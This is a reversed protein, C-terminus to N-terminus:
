DVYFSMHVVDGDDNILIYKFVTQRRQKCVRDTMTMYFYYQFVLRKTIHGSIQHDCLNRGIRLQGSLCESALHSSSFLM